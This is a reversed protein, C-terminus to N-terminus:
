GPKHGSCSPTSQPKSYGPPQYSTPARYRAYLLALGSLFIPWSCPEVLLYDRDAFTIIILIKIIPFSSWPLWADEHTVMRANETRAERVKGGAAIKPLCGKDETKNENEREMAKGNPNSHVRTQFTRTVVSACEHLQPQSLRYPGASCCGCSFYPHM